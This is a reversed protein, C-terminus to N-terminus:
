LSDESDLDRILDPDVRQYEADRMDFVPKYGQTSSWSEAGGQNAFLSTGDDLIMPASGSNLATIRADLARVMEDSDSQNRTRNLIGLYAYRISLDRATQNNSSFPTTFRAGLSENVRLAGYPLWSSEVEAKDVGKLSYVSTFDAFSAYTTPM